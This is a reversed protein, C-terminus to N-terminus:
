TVIPEEKHHEGWCLRQHHGSPVQETWEASACTWCHQSVTPVARPDPCPWIVIQHNSIYPWWWPSSLRIMLFTCDGDLLHCDSWQFYVTVTLSITIQDNFIYPWWWPSSSRIMLVTRDGDLLHCDSWQFHLSVMLSIVFQDKFIYLWWWPSSSQIMLLTCDGDLLHCDSWHFYVTVTLSITIQDNFIYLWRWPTLTILHNSGSGPNLLQLNSLAPCHWVAPLM